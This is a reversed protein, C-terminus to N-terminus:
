YLTVPNAVYSGSASWYTQSRYLAHLINSGLTVGEEFHMPEIWSSMTSTPPVKQAVIALLLFVYRERRTL